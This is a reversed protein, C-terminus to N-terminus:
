MIDCLEPRLEGVEEYLIRYTDGDTFLVFRKVM